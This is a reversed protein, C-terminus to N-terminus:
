HQEDARRSLAAGQNPSTRYTVMYQEASGVVTRFAPGLSLPGFHLHPNPTFVHSLRPLSGDSERVAAGKSHSSPRPRCGSRANGPLNYPHVSRRVVLGNTLCNPSSISSPSSRRWPARELGEPVILASEHPMLEQSRCFSLALRPSGKNLAEVLHRHRNHRTADSSAIKRAFAITPESNTNGRKVNRSVIAGGYSSDRRVVHCM